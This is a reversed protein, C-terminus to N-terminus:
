PPDKFYNTSRPEFKRNVNQAIAAREIEPVPENEDGDCSLHVCIVRGTHTHRSRSLFTRLKDFRQRKRLRSLDHDARRGKLSFSISDRRRLSQKM